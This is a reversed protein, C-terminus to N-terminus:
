RFLGRLPVPTPQKTDAEPTYKPAPEQFSSESDEKENQELDPIRSKGSFLGKLRNSKEEQASM